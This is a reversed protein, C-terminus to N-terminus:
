DRHFFGIPQKRPPSIQFRCESLLESPSELWLIRMLPIKPIISSSRCVCAHTKTNKREEVHPRTADAYYTYDSRRQDKALRQPYSRYIIPMSRFHYEFVDKSKKKNCVFKVRAIVRRTGQRSQIQTIADEPM